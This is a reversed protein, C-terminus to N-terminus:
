LLLLVGKRNLYTHHCLVRFAVNLYTFKVRSSLPALTPKSSRHMVTWVLLQESFPM